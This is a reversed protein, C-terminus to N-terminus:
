KTSLYSDCDQIFYYHPDLKKVNGTSRSRGARLLYAARERSVRSNSRGELIRQDLRPMSKAQM